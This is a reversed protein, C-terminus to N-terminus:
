DHPVAAYRATADTSPAPDWVLYRDFGPTWIRQGDVTVACGSYGHMGDLWMLGDLGM